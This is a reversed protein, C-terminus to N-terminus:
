QQSPKIMHGMYVQALYKNCTDLEQETTINLGYSICIPELELAAHNAKTNQNTDIPGDTDSNPLTVLETHNTLTPIASPKATPTQSTCNVKPSGPQAGSHNGTPNSKVM